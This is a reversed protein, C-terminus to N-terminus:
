IRGGEKLYHVRGFTIELLVGRILDKSTTILYILPYLAEGILAYWCLRNHKSADFTM